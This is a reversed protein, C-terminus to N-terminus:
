ASHEAHIFPEERPEIRCTIPLFFLGVVDFFLQNPKFMYGRGKNM